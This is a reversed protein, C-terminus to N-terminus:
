KKKCTLTYVADVPSSYGQTVVIYYKQKKKTKFTVTSTSYTYFDKIRNRNKDYVRVRWGNRIKDPSDNSILKVQCKSGTAKYVYYDNDENYYLTGKMKSTIKTAKSFSNNGEVEWGNSATTQPTLTYEVGVPASSSAYSKVNVRLTTGKKFNLIQSTYNTKVKESCIKINDADYITIEWGYGIAKEYYDPINFVFKTPGNAPITYQFVDEDDSSYMSGHTANQDILTVAKTPDTLDEIEWNNLPQYNAVISYDIGVAEAKLYGAVDVSIYFVSGKVFNYNKTTIVKNSYSYEELKELNVDYVKVNWSGGTSSLQVMDPTFKFSVTGDEPMTYTYWNVNEKSQVKDTRAVNTELIYPVKKTTDAYTNVPYLGMVMLLCLMLSLAKKLVTKM